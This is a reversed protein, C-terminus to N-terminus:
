FRGWRLFGGVCMRGTLAKLKRIATLLVKLPLTLLYHSCLESIGSGQYGDYIAFPEIGFSLAVRVAARVAANMGQSDGGSTLIGVKAVSRKLSKLEQKLNGTGVINSSKPSSKLNPSSNPLIISTFIDRLNSFSIEHGSPDRASITYL